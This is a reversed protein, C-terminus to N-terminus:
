IAPHFHEVPQNQSHSSAGKLQGVYTAVAIRPPISVAVHVHDEIGGVAHVIGGLDIGKGRLYQYLQPELTPTILPARDKVAWVFHYFLQWYAM